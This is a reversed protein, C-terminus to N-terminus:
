KGKLHQNPPLNTLIQEETTMVKSKKGKKLKKKRQYIKQLPHKETPHTSVM